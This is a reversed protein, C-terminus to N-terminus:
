DGGVVFMGEVTRTVNADGGTARASVRYVHSVADASTSASAPGLDEILHVPQRALVASRRADEDLGVTALITFDYRGDSGRYATAGETVWGSGRRFARAAASDGMQCDMIPASGCRLAGSAADRWLRWQAGHLASEAAMGALQANRQSGAMRQQLLAQGVAGTALLTSLLLFVLALVLVIGRQRTRRALSGPDDLVSM